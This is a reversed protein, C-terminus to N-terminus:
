GSANAFHYRCSIESKRARTGGESLSPYLNGNGEVREHCTPHIQDTPRYVWQYGRLRPAHVERVMRSPKNRGAVANFCRESRLADDNSPKGVAGVDRDNQTTKRPAGPSSRAENVLGCKISIPNPRSEASGASEKGQPRRVIQGSPM